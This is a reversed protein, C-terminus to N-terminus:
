INIYLCFPQTQNPKSVRAQQEARELNERGKGEGEWAKTNPTLEWKQIYAEKFCKEYLQNANHVGWLQKDQFSKVAKTNSCSLRSHLRKATTRNQIKSHAEGSRGPRCQRQKSLKLRIHGGRSSKNWVSSWKVIVRVSFNKWKGQLENVTNYPSHACYIGHYLRHYITCIYIWLGHHLDHYLWCYSLGITDPATQSQPCPVNWCDLCTHHFLTANEIPYCLNRWTSDVGARRLLPM